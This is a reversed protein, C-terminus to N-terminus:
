IGINMNKNHLKYIPCCKVTECQRSVFIRIQVSECSDESSARLFYVDLHLSLGFHLDRIESSVDADAAHILRKRIHALYWISM